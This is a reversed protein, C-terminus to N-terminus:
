FFFFETHNFVLCIFWVFSVLIKFRGSKNKIKNARSHICLEGVIIVSFVKRRNKVLQKEKLQHSILAM